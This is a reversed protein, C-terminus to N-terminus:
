GRRRLVLREVPAPQEVSVGEIRQSSAVLEVGDLEALVRVAAPEAGASSFRQLVPVLLWALVGLIWFVADAKAAGESMDDSWIAGVVILGAIGLACAEAAVLGLLRRGRLLLLSTVVLLTVVIVVLITGAWRSLTENEFGSWIAAVLLVFGVAATAASGWGLASVVRREVLSLGSVALAGCLLLSGLTGLIKGDTESFDGRVVAAIAVLAALILIAAAGIWFIRRLRHSTASRRGAAYQAHGGPRTAPHAPPPYSGLDRPELTVGQDPHDSLAHGSTRLGIVGAAFILLAGALGVEAGFSPDYGASTSLVLYGFYMLATQAGIAALLMALLRPSVRRFVLPAFAALAVALPELAFAYTWELQDPDFIAFGDGDIQAYPIFVGLAVLVGGTPSLV